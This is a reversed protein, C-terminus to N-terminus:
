NIQHYTLIDKRPEIFIDNISVRRGLKYASVTKKQKQIDYFFERNQLYEILDNNELNVSENKDYPNEINNEDRGAGLSSYVREHEEQNIKLDNM